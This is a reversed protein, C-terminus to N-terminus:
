AATAADAGDGAQRRVTLVSCPAQRVVAEAVSGMFMRSLGSLGRTGMVILDHRRLTARRVIEEAAEGCKTYGRVQLAERTDPTVAERLFDALEDKAERRMMQHVTVAPGNGTQVMINPVIPPPLAFVHFLDVAADFRAALGMGIALASRSGDSFDVPM